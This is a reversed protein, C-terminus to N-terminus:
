WGSRESGRSGSSGIAVSHGTSYGSCEVDHFASLIAFQTSIVLIRLLVFWARKM